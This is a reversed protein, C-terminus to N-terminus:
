PDKTITNISLAQQHINLWSTIELLNASANNIGSQKEIMALM